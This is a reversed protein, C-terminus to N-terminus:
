NFGYKACPEQEYPGHGALTHMLGSRSMGRMVIPGKWVDGPEESPELTVVVLFKNWDVSGSVQLRDTLPGLRKIRDLEESAVWATYVGERPPKITDREITLSLDYRYTGKTSVAVGYPSSSFIVNGRGVARGTGPVRKTPVLEISYYSSPLDALKAAAASCSAGNFGFGWQSWPSASEEVAVAFPPLCLGASLLAALATGRTRM